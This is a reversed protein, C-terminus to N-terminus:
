HPSQHPDKVAVEGKPSSCTGLGLIPIKNGNSEPDGTGPNFGFKLPIGLKFDSSILFLLHSCGLISGVFGFQLINSFFDEFNHFIFKFLIKFNYFSNKM